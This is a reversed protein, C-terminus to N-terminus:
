FGLAAGLLGHPLAVQFMREFVLYLAVATVVAIVALAAAVGHEPDRLVSRVHVAPRRRRVDRDAPHRRRLRGGARVARVALRLEVARDVRSRAVRCGAM